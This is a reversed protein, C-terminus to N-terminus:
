LYPNFKDGGNNLRRITDSTHEKEKLNSLTQRFQQAYVMQVPACM